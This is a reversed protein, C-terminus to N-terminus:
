IYKIKEVGDFKSRWHLHTSFYVDPIYRIDFPGFIWNGSIQCQRKEEKEAPYGTLWTISEMGLLMIDYWSGFSLILNRTRNIAQVISLNVENRLLTSEFNVIYIEKKKFVFIERYIPFCLKKFHKKSVYLVSLFLIMPNAFDKFLM